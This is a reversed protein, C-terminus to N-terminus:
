GEKARESFGWLPFAGLPDNVLSTPGAAAADGSPRPEPARVTIPALAQRTLPVFASRALQIPAPDEATFFYLQEAGGGLHQALVAPEVRPVLECGVPVLVGPAVQQFMQGLPIYEMASESLVFIDPDTLCVSCRSLVGPPLLYVLKKLWEAQDPPVRAAIVPLRPASSAVVRLPVQMREVAQATHMNVQPRGPAGLEVLAGAPVFTPAATLLDLSARTGSFLYFRGEDFISTCAGLVFPHRYGVEVAVQKAILRHLELGPTRRFLVEMRPALTCRLLYFREPPAGETTQRECAAVECPRRSRHLYGVAARWLGPMARILVPEEPRLGDGQERQLSLSLALGGFPLERERTYAQVFDNDYLILDGQGAHLTDVDYGLPSRSDRYKVFHKASGTFTLGGMLSAVAAVSDATHSGTVPLLVIFERSQLPTKVQHIKLAPLVDDISMRESLGRFLGVVRDVSPLLVALFRGLAVGRSDSSLGPAMFRTQNATVHELM